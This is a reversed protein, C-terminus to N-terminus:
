ALNSLSALPCVSWSIKPYHDSVFFFLKIVNDGRRYLEEGFIFLNEKIGPIYENVQFFILLSSRKHHFFVNLM